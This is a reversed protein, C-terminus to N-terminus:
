RHLEYVGATMTNNLLEREKHSLSPSQIVEILEALQHQNSCGVVTSTVAANQLAYHIATQATLRNWTDLERIMEALKAMEKETHQLYPKAPKDVLLGQALSGRALLGIKHQQLLPLVTEEARRDALSYQMMVSSIASRRVYERIVNPRLSSICYHRIKGQQKLIEFAEITDDIPDGITGGNLQYLDIYDTKM